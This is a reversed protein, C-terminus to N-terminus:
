SLFIVDYNDILYSFHHKNSDITIQDRVRQQQTRLINQDRTLIAITPTVNLFRLRDLFQKYKPISLQGDNFYPCSISTVFRDHQKFMGPTLLEPNNWCDAFTERDHGIWYNDLLESWGKVSQDASFIKSWMHNGSGQPGTIILIRKVQKKDIRTQLNFSLWISPQEM